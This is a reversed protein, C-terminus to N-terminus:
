PIYGLARLQRLQEPTMPAQEGEGFREALARHARWQELLLERYRAVLEPHEDNVAHRAYPDAELDYLLLRPVDVYLPHVAGWRGGVPVPHRGLEPDAGEAVPGIELSAGWRGDIIELNGVMEGSPEDVRFEDLIVPGAEMPQGRLLPALSHGQRVEPQPLGALDLITPLVDIMSVPQEIRRGAELRGPWIWILPVRTAYADFLAGQWPEPQPELLGRGFRAFTGAPHGHDSGIVLLTNEWEGRKKLAAVLEELAHDQHTMTEDYLGRRTGFYAQRDVGARELGIDYYSTISTTGFLGKTASQIEEDWAALQRRQEESVFRGAFPAEPQNPEHVDTTQLHVFYPQGPYADRWALFRQQLEISSTSHHQTEGDRMLDIGRDIGIIRGANPNATFSATQYGAGRLHEALTTAEAPVSTSHVGRRLGGLVSHQLSTMFSVTSPQTWTSNSHAREFLVGERALKELFPTTPRGYEYVSMLDADGGDIVYFVINPRALEASVNSLVPAGWLAVAGPRESEAELVVNVPTPGPLSLDVSRQQWAEADSITEEFLERVAGGDDIRVRYTVSEGREVALGFDLRSGSTLVLPYALRAPAHAFITDRTTGGRSVSRAGASEHFAAGRPVLSVSLVDVSADGPSGFLVALSRFAVAEKGDAPGRLPIAYSQVSGDNFVPPAEDTSMVFRRFSPLSGEEEVNYSVTVGAFRDSSRAVVLVAEWDDLAREELDVVIGGIRIPGQPEQPARLTLAVADDRVAREVRALRPVTDSSLVRWGGALAAVDWTRSRGAAAPAQGSEVTAATLGSALHVIPDTLAVAEHTSGIGEPVSSEGCAAIAAALGIGLLRTPSGSM